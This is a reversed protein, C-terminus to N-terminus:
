AFLERAQPSLFLANTAPMLDHVLAEDLTFWGIGLSQKAEYHGQWRVVRYLVVLVPARCLPPDFRFEALKDGVHLSVGVEERFERDCAVADTEEGEVKGGPTEWLYGFDNRLPDRQAMLVRPVGDTGREIVVGSVVRIRNAKKMGLPGEVPPVWDSM